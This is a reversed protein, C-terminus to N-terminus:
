ILCPLDSKQQYLFPWYPKYNIIMNTPGLGKGSNYHIPRIGINRVFYLSCQGPRDIGLGISGVSGPLYPIGVM